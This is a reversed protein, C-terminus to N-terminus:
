AWRKSAAFSSALPTIPPDSGSTGAYQRELMSMARAQSRVIASAGVGAVRRTAIRVAITILAVRPPAKAANRM